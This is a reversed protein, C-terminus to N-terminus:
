SIHSGFAGGAGRSAQEDARSSSSGGDGSGVIILSLAARLQMEEAALNMIPQTVCWSVATDADHERM